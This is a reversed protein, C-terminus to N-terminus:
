PVISGVDSLFLQPPRGTPSKSSKRPERPTIRHAFNQGTQLMKQAVLFTGRRHLIGYHERQEDDGAYCCDGRKAGSRRFGKRFCPNRTPMRGRRGTGVTGYGDFPVRRVSGTSRVGQTGPGTKLMTVTSSTQAPLFGEAVPM